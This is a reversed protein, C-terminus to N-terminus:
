PRPGRRPFGSEYIALLNSNYRLCRNISSKCVKCAAREAGSCTDPGLEEITGIM